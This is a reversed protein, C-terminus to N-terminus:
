LGFFRKMYPIVLSIPRQERVVVEATVLTGTTIKFPPGERSSWRFGSPTQPDTILDAHVVIPPTEKFFEKVLGENGLISLMSKQTAPYSAVWTVRGFIYGFEDRKVTAPSIQVTMGPKVRKGGQGSPIYVVARLQPQLPELSFIRDGAQLQDGVRAALELVRGTFDSRISTQYALQETLLALQDQTELIKLHKNFLDREQQNKTRLEEENIKELNLLTQRQNERAEQLKIKTDYLTKETILGKELLGTQNHVRRTLWREREGIDGLQGRLNRRQDRFSAVKLEWERAYVKKEHEYDRTLAELKNRTNTVKVDLDPQTVRAVVQGKQVLDGERVLIALVEGPGRTVVMFVGGTHILIGGGNVKTPVSGWIGWILATAILIWCAALALWGAPSTVTVLRDLHEASHPRVAIHEPSLQTAM